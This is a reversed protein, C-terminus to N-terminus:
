AGTFASASIHKRRSPWGERARGPYKHLSSILKSYHQLLLSVHRNIWPQGLYHSVVHRRQVADFLHAHKASNTEHMMPMHEAPYMFVAREVANALLAM